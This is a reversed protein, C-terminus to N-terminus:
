PNRQPKAPVQAKPGEDEDFNLPRAPIDGPGALPILTPRLLLLVTGETKQDRAVPLLRYWPGITPNLESSEIAVLERKQVPMRVVLTAQDPVAIACTAAAASVPWVGVQTGTSAPALFEASFDLVAHHGTSAGYAAIRLQLGDIVSTKEGHGYPGEQSLDLSCVHGLRMSQGYQESLILATAQPAPSEDTGLEACLLRLRDTGLIMADAGPAANRWMMRPASPASTPQPALLKDMREARDPPVLLYTAEVRVWPGTTGALVGLLSAVERHYRHSTRVFLLGCTEDAIGTDIGGLDKWIAPVGVDNCIMKRISDVAEEHTMTISVGGDTIHGYPVSAMAEALPGIKYIRMPWDKAIEKPTSVLVRGDVVDYDISAPCGNAGVQMLVRILARQAPVQRLTLDLPTEAKVGVEALSQWDVDFNVGAANLVSTLAAKLTSKEANLDIRKELRAFIERERADPGCLDFEPV